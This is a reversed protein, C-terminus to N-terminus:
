SRDGGLIPLEDDVVVRDRDRGVWLWGFVGSAGLLFVWGLWALWSPALVGPGFVVAALVWLVTEVAIEIM